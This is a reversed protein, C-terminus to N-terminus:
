QSDHRKTLRPSMDRPKDVIGVKFDRKERSSLFSRGPSEQPLFTPYKVELKLSGELIAKAREKATPIYANM